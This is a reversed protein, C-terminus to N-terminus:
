FISGSRENAQSSRAIFIIFYILIMGIGARFTIDEYVSRENEYM